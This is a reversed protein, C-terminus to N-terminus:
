IVSARVARTYEDREVKFFGLANLVLENPVKRDKRKRRRRGERGGEDKM